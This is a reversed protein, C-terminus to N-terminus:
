KPIFTFSVFLLGNDTMMGQDTIVSKFKSKDLENIIDIFGDRYGEIDPLSDSICIFIHERNLNYGFSRDV